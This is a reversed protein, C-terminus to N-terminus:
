KKKVEAAVAASVILASILIIGITIFNIKRM